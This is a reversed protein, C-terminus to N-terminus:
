VPMIRTLSRVMQRCHDTYAPGTLLKTGAFQNTQVCVATNFADRFRLYHFRDGSRPAILCTAAGGCSIGPELSDLGIRDSDGRARM